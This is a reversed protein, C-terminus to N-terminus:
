RLEFTTVGYVRELARGAPDTRFVDSYDRAPTMRLVKENTEEADGREAGERCELPAPALQKGCVSQRISLYAVAFVEDHRHFGIGYDSRDIAIARGAGVQVLDRNSLGRQRIATWRIFRLFIGHPLCRTELGLIDGRRSPSFDRCCLRRGHGARNRKNIAVKLNPALVGDLSLV